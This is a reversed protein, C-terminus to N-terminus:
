QTPLKTDGAHLLQATHSDVTRKTKETSSTPKGTDKAQAWLLPRTAHKANRRSPTDLKMLVSKQTPLAHGAQEFTHESSKTLNTMAKLTSQM